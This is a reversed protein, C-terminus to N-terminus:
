AESSSAPSSFYRSAARPLNSSEAALQLPKVSRQTRNPSMNQCPSAPTPFGFPLPDLGTHTHTERERERECVCM